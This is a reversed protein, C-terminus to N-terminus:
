DSRPVFPSPKNVSFPMNQKTFKEDVHQNLIITIHSDLEVKYRPAAVSSSFINLLIM